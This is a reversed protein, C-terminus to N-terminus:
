ALLLALRTIKALAEELEQTSILRPAAFANLEELLASRDRTGDALLLLQREIAGEIQVRTHRLTAIMDSSHLQLRALPSALPREGPGLTFRPQHVHLEVLGAQCTRLLIEGLARPDQPDSRGLRSRVRELLEPFALSRPWIETLQAMVARVIPHATTMSAGQPGLFEQTGEPSTSVAHAPSAVYFRTMHEPKLARDLSLQQRCLLTQRYSRCKLFDLYQERLVPDSSLQDLIHRAQPSFEGGSMSALQAEALYQLGHRAAQEIFHYFYLPAYVESLEDHFVFPAQREALRKLEEKVFLGYADPKPQAEALLNLLAMAQSVRAKPEDLDRIHFLMMERLMTRLHGGPYTNYSVYAVGQPALHTELIALLKEQVEASAWAYLGHAIIYDFQPFDGPLDLLDLQRLAINTLGLAELLAQGKAIPRGARDIGLFQSAPLGFAMSILNSGDGCALELVRCREVPAPELGFLRAQTALGDPHTHPLVYGPYLVEDYSDTM